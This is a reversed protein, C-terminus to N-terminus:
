AIRRKFLLRLRYIRWPSLTVSLVGALLLSLALLASPLHNAPQATFEWWQYGQTGHGWYILVCLTGCPFIWSANWGFIRGSILSLGFWALVSRQIIPLVAVGVGVWAGMLIFVSSLILTGTLVVLRLRYFAVGAAEELAAIPSILTLM